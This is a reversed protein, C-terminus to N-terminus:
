AAESPLTSTMEAITQFEAMFEPRQQALYRVVRANGLLKGLYGKIVTLQLHDNGYSHQILTISEQLRGLEREMRAMAEPSMGKLRKPKSAEVLQAQPTGALIASAYSVSYNNANIMLEAAEIQRLPNMRRLSDFVGMPCAKDKLLAITEECIDHLMRAKRQVSQVNLNLAKAIKEEPVGREIARLIMKHEQIAALRSIRKNYTFAEDDTSVLCEVETEGLDKLVEIRLHGDLLLFIGLQRRDRAVVPLEVLGVERISAAIQRYKHSMRETKRLARIPLVSLIPLRICNGEFAQTVTTSQRADHKM